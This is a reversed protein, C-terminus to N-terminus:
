GLDKSRDKVQVAVVSCAESNLDSSGKNGLCCVLQPSSQYCRVCIRAESTMNKKMNLM